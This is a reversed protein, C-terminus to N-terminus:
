AANKRRSIGILGLLGICFVWVAAPITAYRSGKGIYGGFSGLMEHISKGSTATVDLRDLNTDTDRTILKDGELLLDVEALSTSTISSIFLLCTTCVAGLLLAKNM